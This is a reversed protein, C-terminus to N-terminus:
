QACFTSFQVYREPMVEHGGNQRRQMFGIDFVPM